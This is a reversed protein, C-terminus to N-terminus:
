EEARTFWKHFTYLSRDPEFGVRCLVRQAPLNTLQTSYIMRAAGKEKCWRVASLLLSRFIGLGRAEPAVAFLVGEGETASNIRVTAFGMPKGGYEAILIESVATASFSREAWSVYTEDCKRRDLRTDAHYHGQYGEFATEAIELVRAKDELKHPRVEIKLPEDSIKSKSFDCTYYILTDMISFGREEMQQATSVDGTECRAILLAINRSVCFETIESLTSDTVRAARAVSVSFRESDIESFEVPPFHAM